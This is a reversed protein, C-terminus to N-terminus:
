GCTNLMLKTVPQKLTNWVTHSEGMYAVKSEHLGCARSLVEITENNSVGKLALPRSLAPFDIYAGHETRQASLRQGSRTIYSISQLDPFQTFLVLSAAMTAHGCLPLFNGAPGLWAIPLDKEVFPYISTEFLHAESIIALAPLSLKRVCGCIQLHM